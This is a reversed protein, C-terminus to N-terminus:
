DTISPSSTSNMTQGTDTGTGTAPNYIYLNGASNQIAVRFTDDPEAILSPSTANNMTISTIIYATPTLDYDWLYLDGQNTQWAIDFTGSPNAAIAPSATNMMGKTTSTAAGTAPDYTWLDTTNAEFVAAFQGDTNAAIAPSTGPEMGKTTTIVTAANVDYQTLDTNSAQYVAKFAGAPSAALSPSTGQAMAQGTNTVAATKANYIYLDGNNAQYAVRITGDASVAISPSTGAHVGSGTNTTTGTASNYIYLDGNTDTSRYATAYGGTPLAVTSPSSNASITLGPTNTAGGSYTHLSGGADQYSTTLIAVPSGLAQPTTFTALGQATPAAGPFDIVQGATNQAILDPYATTSTAHLVQAYLTPYASQTLDPAGPLALLTRTGLYPYGNADYVVPYQYIAGTTNYRAWLVLQGNVTVPSLVTYASWGGNGLMVATGLYDLTGQGQYYWLSGNEVTLLGPAGNDLTAKDPSNGYLDPSAVIQTTAGWDSNDYDTTGTGCASPFTLTAYCATTGDSDGTPSVYEADTAVESKTFPGTVNATDNYNNGTTSGNNKYLYLNHTTPNLVWLDDVGQTYSGDHTYQYATWPSTGDPSQEPTGVIIPAATTDSNGPYEVLDGAPSTTVLDPIGDGNVDGPKVTTSPSWPLYFSYPTEASLNGANDVAQVYVTTTGWHTPTVTINTSGSSAIFASNTTAPEDLSYYFGKLGSAAGTSPAPDSSTLTLAGSDNDTQGYRKSTASTGLAPFDTSTITPNHPATFDVQFRCTATRPSANYYDTSYLSWAYQNGDTLAPTQISVNAGTTVYGSSTYNGVLTNTTTDTLTFVGQMQAAAIQSTLNASLTVAQSGGLNSIGVFGVGSGDCDQTVTGNSNIPAPSAALATPTNPPIDYVTYVSPNDNFRELSEWSGSEDGFLGFTIHTGNNAANSAIASELDFNGPVVNGTCMTGDSNGVTKMATPNPLTSIVAPQNNWTTASSISGTWKVTITETGENCSNDASYVENIKMISTDIVDNSNLNATNFDFYSRYKGYGPCNGDGNIDNYGVGPQTVDDWNAVTPCGSQVESYNNTGGSQYPETWTPDLYLPYTPATSDLQTATGNLTLATGSDTIQLPGTHAGLGPGAPTSGPNTVTEFDDPVNNAASGTTASDWMIAPPASLMAQGSADDVVNLAGTSDQSLSAGSLNTTFRLAQAQAEAAANDVKFVESFGGSPQATVTLSIGPYIQAYTASAGDLTPTPLAVPLSLAMSAGSSDTATIAPGTGGGSLTLGNPTATTSITGDPNKKLTPDIDEWAGASDKMRTPMATSTMALTGDPLAQTISDDTTLADVAVPQGTSAAQALAAYRPDASTSISGSTGTTDAQAPLATITTTGLVLALLGACARAHNSATTSPKRRDDSAM